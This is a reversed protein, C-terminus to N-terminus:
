MTKANSGWLGRTLVIQQMESYKENKNENKNENQNM